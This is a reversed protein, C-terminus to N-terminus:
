LQHVRVIHIWINLGILRHPIRQQQVPVYWNLVLVSLALVVLLGKMTYRLRLARISSLSSSANCVIAAFLCNPEHSINVMYKCICGALGWCANTARSLMVHIIIM